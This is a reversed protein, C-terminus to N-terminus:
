KIFSIKEKDRDKVKIRYINKKKITKKGKIKIIIAIILIIIVITICIIKFFKMVIEGKRQKGDLNIYNNISYSGSRKENINEKNENKTDNKITNTNTKVENESNVKNVSTLSSYIIKEKPNMYFGIKKEERDFIVDYGHLFTTGLTIVKEETSEFGLCARFIHESSIDVWYNEHKWIFKYDKFNITIDIWNSIKSIMDQEDTFIACVGFHRNKVLKGCSKEPCKEEIEKVILDFLDNPFSCLSATTDIVATAKYDFVKGMIDFSNIELNYYKEEDVTFPLYNIKESPININIEGLSLYGTNNQNLFITFLNKPIIKSKYLINVFSNEDNNLGIIGDSDQAIIYNTENITCGITINYSDSDSTKIFSIKENVLIGKVFANEYYDYKYLCQNNECNGSLEGCKSNDCSLIQNEKNTVNFWENSHYGCTECLNCPSSIFSNTTDLIFDQPYKEEGYYLTAYFYFIKGKKINIPIIISQTLSMNSAILLIFIFELNYKSIM